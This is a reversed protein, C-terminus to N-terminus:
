TTCLGSHVSSHGHVCAENHHHATQRHRGDDRIAARLAQLHPAATGHKAREDDRDACRWCDIAKTTGRPPVTGHLRAFRPVDLLEHLGVTDGGYTYAVHRIAIEKPCWAVTVPEGTALCAECKGSRYVGGRGVPEATGHESRSDIAFGAPPSALALYLPGFVEEMLEHEEPGEFLAIPLAARASQPHETNLFVLQMKTSIDGKDVTVAIHLTDHAQQPWWRMDGATHM